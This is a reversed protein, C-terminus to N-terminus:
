PTGIRSAERAISANRVPLSTHSLLYAGGFSSETRVPPRGRRGNARGFSDVLMWLRSRVFANTARYPARGISAISSPTTAFHSAPPERLPVTGTNRAINLSAAGAFAPRTAPLLGNARSPIERPGPRRCSYGGLSSCTQFIMRQARSSAVGDNAAQSCTAANVPSRGPSSSARRRRFTSRAHERMRTTSCNLATVGANVTGFFPWARSAGSVSGARSASTDNDISPSNQKAGMRPRCQVAEARAQWQFATLAAAPHSPTQVEGGPM